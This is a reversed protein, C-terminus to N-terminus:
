DAATEKAAIARRSIGRGNRGPSYAQQFNTQERAQVKVAEQLCLQRIQEHSISVGILQRISQQAQRYPWAAACYIAVQRLGPSINAEALAKLDALCGSNLQFLRGCSQCKLRPLAFFIPGFKTKLQRQQYGKFIARKKQVRSM